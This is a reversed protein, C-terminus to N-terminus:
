FIGKSRLLYEVARDVRLGDGMDTVKLAGKAEDSTFGMEVIRFIAKESTGKSLDCDLVQPRLMGRERMMDYPPLEEAIPEQHPFYSSRVSMSRQLPRRPAIRPPPPPPAQRAPMSPTVSSESASRFSGWERGPTREPHQLSRVSLKRTRFETDRAKRISRMEKMQVQEPSFTECIREEYLRSVAEHLFTSRSADAFPASWSTLGKSQATAFACRSDAQCLATAVDLIPALGLTLIYM